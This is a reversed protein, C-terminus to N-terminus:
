ELLLWLPYLIEKIKAKQEDELRISSYLEPKKNKGLLLFEPSVLFIEALRVVHYASIKGQGSEYSILTNRHVGLRRALYTQSWNKEVRLTAIRVGIEAAYKKDLM